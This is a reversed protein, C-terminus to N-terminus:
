DGLSDRLNSRCKAQYQRIGDFYSETRERLADFISSGNERTRVASAQLGNAPTGVPFVSAMDYCTAQSLKSTMEYQLNRTEILLQEFTDRNFPLYYCCAPETIRTGAARDIPNLNEDHKSSRTQRIMEDISLVMTRNNEIAVGISESAFGNLKGRPELFWRRTFSAPASIVELADRLIIEFVLDPRGHDDVPALGLRLEATTFRVIESEGSARLKMQEDLEAHQAAPTITGALEWESARCQWVTGEDHRVNCLPVSPIAALPTVREQLESLRACPLHGRSVRGSVDIWSESFDSVDIEVSDEFLSFAYFNALGYRTVERFYRAISEADIAELAKRRFLRIFIDVQESLSAVVQPPTEAGAQLVPGFVEECLAYRDRGAAEAIVEVLPLIKQPQQVYGSPPLTNARKGKVFRRLKARTFKDHWLRQGILELSILSGTEHDTVGERKLADLLDGISEAVREAQVPKLRPATGSALYQYLDEARRQHHALAQLKKRKEEDVSQM